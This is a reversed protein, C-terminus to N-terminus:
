DAPAADELQFQGLGALVLEVCDVEVWSVETPHCEGDPDPYIKRCERAIVDKPSAVGGRASRTDSNAVGSPARLRESRGPADAGRGGRSRQPPVEVACAPRARESGSRLDPAAPRASARLPASPSGPPADSVFGVSSGGTRDRALAALLRGAGLWSSARRRM